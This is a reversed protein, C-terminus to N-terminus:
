FAALIDNIFNVLFDMRETLVILTASLAGAFMSGFTISIFVRGLLAVIRMAGFQTASGAPSQRTTFRFYVLTTITGVLVILVNVMREIGTEGTQPAVANPSLSVMSAMSQPILTGTIAGGVVVGAGVGVMLVIPLAGWRATSPSLKLLMMAILIWAGIILLGQEGAFVEGSMLRQLGGALLPDVLNPKLVNYWAITGAYGASIGIFIHTALKFLPNDGILYSLIMVTLAASILSGILEIGTLESM